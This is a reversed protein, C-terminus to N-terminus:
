SRSGRSQARLLTYKLRVGEASRRAFTWGLGGGLVRGKVLYERLFAAAPRLLLNSRGAPARATRSEAWLEAYRRQRADYDAWDRYSEHDLLGPLRGLRGEVELTEHITTSGFRCLRRDYLRVQRERAWPWTRLPFGALRTLRRMAYAACPPADPLGAIAAALTADVREDADLSLIWDHTALAAARDKQPGYGRFGELHVRAGAARALDPTGDTSGSDLVVIEDAWAVSRLASPLRDAEDKAIIAVSLPRV